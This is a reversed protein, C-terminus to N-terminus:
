LKAFQHMRQIHFLAHSYKNIIEPLLRILTHVTYVIPGTSTTDNTNIIGTYLRSSSGLNTEIQLSRSVDIDLPFSHFQYKYGNPPNFRMPDSRCSLFLLLGVTLLVNFSRSVIPHTIFYM